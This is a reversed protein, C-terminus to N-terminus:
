NKKCVCSTKRDKKPILYGDEGELLSLQKKKRRLARRLAKLRDMITLHTFHIHSEEATPHEKRKLYEIFQTARM